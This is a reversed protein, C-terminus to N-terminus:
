EFSVSQAYKAFIPKLSDKDESMCSFQILWFSDSTKFVTSYYYYRINNDFNKYEYEFCTIGNETRVTANSANVSGSKVTEAYKNLSWDEFGDMLSFEEQLTLVIVTNEEDVFCATYGEYSQKEFDETLTISMGDTKFVKSNDSKEESDSCATLCAFLVCFVLCVSILKLLRKMFVVREEKAYYLKLKINGCRFKKTLLRPMAFSLCLYLPRTSAPLANASAKLNMLNGLPLSSIKNFCSSPSLNRQCPM